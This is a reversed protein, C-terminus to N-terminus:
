ALSIPIPAEEQDGIQITLIEDRLQGLTDTVQVRISYSNKREFDAQELLRLENNQIIFRPNDTDGAGSVLQYSFTDNRDRVITSFLGGLANVVNNKSIMQNSLM